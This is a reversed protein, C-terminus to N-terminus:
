RDKKSPASKKKGKQQISKHDSVNDKEKDITKSEPQANSLSKDNIIDMTVRDLTGEFIIREVPEPFVIDIIEKDSKNKRKINLLRQAEVLEIFKEEARKLLNGVGGYSFGYRGWHYDPPPMEKAPIMGKGDPRPRDPYKQVIFVEYGQLSVSSLPDEENPLRDIRHTEALVVDGERKLIRYKWEKRGRLTYETELLIM